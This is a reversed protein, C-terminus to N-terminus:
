RGSSANLVPLSIVDTIFLLKFIGRRRTSCLGVTSLWRSHRKNGAYVWFMSFISMFTKLQMNKFLMSSLLLINKVTCEVYKNVLFFVLKPIKKGEYVVLFCLFTNGFHSM